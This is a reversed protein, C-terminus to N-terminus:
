SFDDVIKPKIKFASVAGKKVRYRLNKFIGNIIEDAISHGFNTQTQKLDFKSFNIRIWDVWVNSGEHSVLDNVIKLKRENAIVTPNKVSLKM